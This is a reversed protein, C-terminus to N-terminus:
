SFILTLPHMPHTPSLALFPPFTYLYVHERKANFASSVFFRPSELRASHVLHLFTQTRHYVQPASPPLLPDSIPKLSNGDTYTYAITAQSAGLRRVQQQLCHM